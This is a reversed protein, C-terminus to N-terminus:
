ATAGSRANQLEYVEPSISQDSAVTYPFSAMKTTPADTPAADPPTIAPSAAHPTMITTM